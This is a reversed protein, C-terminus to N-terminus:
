NPYEAVLEEFAKLVQSVRLFPKWYRQRLSRMPLPNNPVIVKNKGWGPRCFRSPSLRSFITLQAVGVNSALHGVGSDNGLMYGSEYVFRALEAITEFTHLPIQHRKALPEWEARENPGVVFHPAYGIDQLRHFLKCYKRPTWNKLINNSMPHIVVRSPHKAKTLYSPPILGNSDTPNTISFRKEVHKRLSKAYPLTRDLEKFDDIYVNLGDRLWWRSDASDQIMLLDYKERVKEFEERTPLPLLKHSPLWDNLDRLYQSTYVDIQHGQRALNHVAVLFVLGDGIPRGTFAAIKKTM